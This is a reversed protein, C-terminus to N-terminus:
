CSWNWYDEVADAADSTLRYTLVASITSRSFRVLAALQPGQELRGAGRGLLASAHAPSIRTLSAPTAARRELFVVRRPHISTEGSSSVASAPVLFERKPEGVWGPVRWRHRFADFISPEKISIPKLFPRLTGSARDLAAIDDSALQWGRAALELALTTKGARSAGALVVADRGRAVVAGHLALRLGSDSMSRQIILHRLDGSLVWPDAGRLIRDGGVVVRWGGAQSQIDITVPRGGRECRFPRWLEEIFDLWAPDGRVWFHTDFVRLHLAAGM